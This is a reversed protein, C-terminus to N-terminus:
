RVHRSRPGPSPSTRAAPPKPQVARFLEEFGKIIEAGFSGGGRALKFLLEVSGDAIQGAPIVAFSGPTLEDWRGRVRRALLRSKIDKLLFRALPNISLFTAGVVKVDVYRTRLNITGGTCELGALKNTVAAHRIRVVPGLLEFVGRVDSITAPHVPLSMQRFIDSLVPVSWFDGKDIRIRGGGRLDDADFCRGGAALELDMRGTVPRKASRAVFATLPVLDVQRTRMHFRYSAEGPRSWDLIKFDGSLTGDCTRASLGAVDIEAPTIVASDWHVDELVLPARGPGPVSARLKEARLRVRGRLKEQRDPAYDLGGSFHITGALETGRLLSKWFRSASADGSLVVKGCIGKVAFRRQGLDYRVAAEMPAVWGPPAQLRKLAVKGSGAGAQAELALKEFIPGERGELLLESVSLRLSHEAEELRDISGRLSGSATLRGAATLGRVGLLRLLAGSEGTDFKHALELRAQVGRSAPDFWGRLDLKESGGRGPRDLCFSYASGRRELTFALGDYVAPSGGPGAPVLRVSAREVVLRRLDLRKRAGQPLPKLPPTCRGRRFYLNCEVGALRVERVVPDLSALGQLSLEVSGIRVWSLGEADTLELGELRARGSFDLDAGDIEVGGAWVGAMAALLQKRLLWPGVGYRLGLVAVVGAAAILGVLRAWRGGPSSKTPSKTKEM